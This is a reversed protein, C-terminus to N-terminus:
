IVTVKRATEKDVGLKKRLNNEKDHTKDVLSLLAISLIRKQEKNDQKSLENDKKDVIEHLIRAFDSLDM